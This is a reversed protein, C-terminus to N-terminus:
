FPLERILSDPIAAYESPPLYLCNITKIYPLSMDTVWKSSRKKYYQRQKAFYAINESNSPAVYVDKM